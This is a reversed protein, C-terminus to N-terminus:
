KLYPLMEKATALDPHDAPAKAIFTEMHPKAEAGKGESVLCMAIMYHVKAFEPNKEASRSFLGLAKKMDGANYANVGQNYLDSAASAPDLESLVAQYTALKEKDGLSKYADVAVRIAKENKPERALVIEAEAAAEAWRKEQAYVIGLAEHAALLEPDQELAAQIKGIATASDGMRLAEVGENYMMAANNAPTSEGQTAEAAVAAASKLTVDHRENSGIPLKLEMEMPQYGEKEFRYDHPRTADVITIAWKGAADTKTELRISTAATNVVTIKVDALPKKTEDRVTGFARAQGAAWAPGAASWAIVFAALAARAAVSRQIRM